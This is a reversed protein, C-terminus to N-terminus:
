VHKGRKQMASGLKEYFAGDNLFVLRVLHEDYRHKMQRDMYLVQKHELWRTIVARVSVFALNLAQFSDIGHVRPVTEGTIAVRCRWDWGPRRDRVPRFIAIRTRRVKGRQKRYLITEAIIM